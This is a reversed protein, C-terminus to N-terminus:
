SRIVEFTADITAIAPGQAGNSPYLTAALDHSGLRQLWPTPAYDGFDTHAGLAYPQDNDVKFPRGDTDFRVSSGTQFFEARLNLRTASLLSLDVVDDNIIFRLDTDTEADVLILAGIVTVVVQDPVSQVWPDSVVLALEYEGVRDPVFSPTASSPDVLTSGSGVPASVVSWAYTIPDGDPDSSGSGDLTVTTGALEIEVDTGADAVPPRNVRTTSAVVNDVTNTEPYEGNAVSFTSTVFTPSDDIFPVADTAVVDLDLDFSDGPDLASFSCSLGGVDPVCTSPANAVTLGTALEVDLTPSVAIAPGGNLINVSYTLQGGLTVPDPVDSVALVLDTTNRADLHELLEELRPLPEEFPNKAANQSDGFHRFPVSINAWDDYGTLTQGTASNRCGNPGQGATPPTTRPPTNNINAGTVATEWPPDGAPGDGSYDANQDLRFIQRIVSAIPLYVGLNINDNPDLVATEDLSSEDLTPLVRGRSSGDLAIRPRSYDILIGGDVRQIGFQHDYNMVSVYNPKCNADVQDAGHLLTLNHGLEHMITGGDGNHDVFDNGGIEAQGGACDNAPNGDGDADVLPAPDTFPVTIAYRFWPRRAVAFTNDAAGDGTQDDPVGDNNTDSNKALYFNADLNCISLTGALTGGGGMNDGVLCTPDAGDVLGNGDNDVGDGCTSPGDEVTSDVFTGAGTCSPDAPIDIVGDGDTDVGTDIQGDTGNDIGDQCTGVAAGETANPDTLGGTDVWLTIGAKRFTEKMAQIDARAINRTATPSNAVDLELFIDPVNPNPTEGPGDGITGSLDWDFGATELTDPIGDGDTDAAAGTNITIDIRGRDDDGDGQYFGPSISRPGDVDLTYSGTLPDVGLRVVKEGPEPSVDITDDNFTDVDTVKITVPIGIDTTDVTRSATFGILFTEPRSIICGTGFGPDSSFEPSTFTQGDITIEFVYDGWCDGEGFGDEPDDIETISDITVSLPVPVAQAPRNPTFVVLSTTLAVLLGFAALKEATM